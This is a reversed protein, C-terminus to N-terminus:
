TNDIRVIEQTQIMLIDVKLELMAGISGSRCWSFKSTVMMSIQLHKEYLESKHCLRVSGIVTRCLWTKRPYTIEYKTIKFQGLLSWLIAVSINRDNEAVFHLNQQRCLEHLGHCTENALSDIMPKLLMRAARDTQIAVKVRTNAHNVIAEQGTRPWAALASNCHPAIFEVKHDIYCAPLLLSNERGGLLWFCGPRPMYSRYLHWEGHRWNSVLSMYITRNFSQEIRPSLAHIGKKTLLPQPKQEQIRLSLYMSTPTWSIPRSAGGKAPFHHRM